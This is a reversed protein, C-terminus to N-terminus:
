EAKCELLVTVVILYLVTKKGFNYIIKIDYVDIIFVFILLLEIKPINM